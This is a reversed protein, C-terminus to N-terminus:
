IMIKFIDNIKYVMNFVKHRDDDGPHEIIEMEIQYEIANESDMDDADGSVETMDISLGKRVFSTRKRNKVRTFNEETDAERDYPVETSIGLRVDFPCNTLEQDNALVRQKIVASEMEDTKDNMIVRKSTLPDIYVTTQKENVVEWMAFKRLRRLVKEFTEKGVNTDFKGRNMKGFRFEIETNPQRSYQQIIDEWATFVQTMSEM